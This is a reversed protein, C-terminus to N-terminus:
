RQRRSFPLTAESVSITLTKKKFPPWLVELTKAPPQTQSGGANASSTSVQGGEAILSVAYPINNGKEIDAFQRMSPLLAASVVVSLLTTETSPSRAPAMEDSGAGPASTELCAVSLLIVEV